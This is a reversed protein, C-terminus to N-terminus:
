RSTPMAVYAISANLSEIMVAGPDVVADAFPIM